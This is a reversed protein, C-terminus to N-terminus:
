IPKIYLQYEARRRIELGKIAVHNSYIWKDFELQIAPDQPNENVKKLLTSSQLNGEGLNYAFSVLAGFQNDNLKANIMHIIATAKQQLEWMLFSEAQAETIAPDGVKVAKGNLYDPPYKICGYGTTDIDPPDISDHYANAYFGEFHKVLDITSQNIKNM